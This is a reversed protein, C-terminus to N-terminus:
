ISFSASVDFSAGGSDDGSSQPPPPPPPPPKKPPPQKKPPPPPPPPPKPPAMKIPILKLPAPPALRIPKLHAIADLTTPAYPQQQMAIPLLHLTPVPPVITAAIPAAAPANKKRWWDMAAGLGAGCVLGIPGGAMAGITAGAGTFSYTKLTTAITV